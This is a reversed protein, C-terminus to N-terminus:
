AKEVVRLRVAVAVKPDQATLREKMGLQEINEGGMRVAIKLDERVALEDRIFNRALQALDPIHRRQDADFAHFDDAVLAAAPEVDEALAQLSDLVAAAIAQDGAHGGAYALAIDVLQHRFAPQATQDLHAYMVRPKVCVADDTRIRVRLK